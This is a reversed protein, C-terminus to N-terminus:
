RCRRTGSDLVSGDTARFEWAFRGKGLTLALVGFHDDDRFVSGRRVKQVSYLSRGGAGSVFSLIGNRAPDGVANMRRFREYQHDHGAMAVEAGHRLAVRWLRRVATSSGHPGSSYRPHHMTLLSCRRPHAEMTRRLWRAERDCSVADCNSNLAYVRWSGVDFSYYGPPRRDFYEYYGAAGATYYEHNGPVPRTTTKFAGWTEDYADRFAAYTGHEYQLDGLGLVLRPDYSAVLAATDADRCTTQTESQGPACSIDGAAVVVPGTVEAAARTMASTAGASAGVASETTAQTTAQATRATSPTSGLAGAVAATALVTGWLRLAGM